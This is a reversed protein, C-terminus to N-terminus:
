TGDAQVCLGVIERDARLDLCAYELLNPQRTVFLRVIERDARLEQCAHQLLHPKQTVMLQILDRDHCFDTFERDQCLDTFSHWSTQIHLGSGPLPRYSAYRSLTTDHRM